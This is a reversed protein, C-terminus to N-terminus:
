KLIDSLVVWSDSNIDESYSDMCICLEESKEDYRVIGGNLSYRELYDKLVAFKKPTFIDIDQSNGSRDFGGKTEVVWIEGNVSIIYDPYFNKQKGSNDAYVISLYENGKDGNKYVWEVANCKECLKEFKRESSSRVEASSLYGQYVNKKMELQTKATGDYTFLCSQPIHFSVKSVQNIDLTLQELEAAMAERVTHRLLDANNIVFAYVERPEMALIKRSYTFNRDFLKRIITNMYSYEMGIEMGIKGVKQHYMHGHDHTNLRETIIVTNMDASAFNLTATEGSLTHRLIDASFEFGAAQLRAKNETKNSGTKFKEEFYKAVSLMAKKPNRHDTVMTRQESTLTIGKYENKLFLTAAELAGKGLSLKVGATFKEDFTYLYCSDLLDKGYHHAEPMRRIRGITQIEFTEDMNDRLKVLIAARPCDWGTAVAQKIIVAVSPANIKEIGELNEHMDSLWVALQGNEYTVGQTEFWREVDDQLKESKNPIQVVILPNIDKGNSLFEARIERQKAYAQKLLYSTANEMEVQQPFDENIILMKKILGEAIVDAEPIEIIEANKIGKPTASCRIIKDTHFYQIIEDAKVTNNQHSEDVIVVFHLGANLAHEIHELFNTRESDKLANNGKKTLKEWNIFCNDNEEFGGTMVDSLLKTQASHIYKDMKEKSQEELNGKGPTLWVFVTHCYSQVYQHMFYTLIITKGSGTPSKLIIDRAPKEMAEFLSKVASLQFNKLQM